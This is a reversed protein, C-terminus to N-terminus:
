VMEHKEKELNITALRGDVIPLSREDLTRASTGLSLDGVTGSDTVNSMRHRLGPAELKM